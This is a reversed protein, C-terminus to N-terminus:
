DRGPRAGVCRVSFRAATVAHCCLERRQLSRWPGDPVEDDRAHGGALVITDPNLV